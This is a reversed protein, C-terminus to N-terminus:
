KCQLFTKQLTFSRMEPPDIPCHTVSENVTVAGPLVPDGSIQPVFVPWCLLKCKECLNNLGKLVKEM